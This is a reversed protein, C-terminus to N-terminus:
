RKRVVKEPKEWQSKDLRKNYYYVKGSSSKHETWVDESSDDDQNGYCYDIVM